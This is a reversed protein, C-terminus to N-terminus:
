PEAAPLMRGVLSEAAVGIAIGVGVDTPFHACRPIQALAVAAAAGHALVSYELYDRAFARAVAVAGASHGSPFSTEEKSQHDGPEMRYRGERTLLKPRTRDVRKKVFDKAVTAVTHAALMRVGAMALRRDAGLLGAALVAGSLVRMPPQDGLKGVLSLARVVPRDEYPAAARAVAVDAKELPSASAAAKPVKLAKRAESKM